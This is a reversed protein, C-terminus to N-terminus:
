NAFGLRHPLQPPPLAWCDLMLLSASTQDLQFSPGRGLSALSSARVGGYARERIQVRLSIPIVYCMENSGTVYNFTRLKQKETKADPLRKGDGGM